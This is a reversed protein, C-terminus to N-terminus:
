KKNPIILYIISAIVLFGSVLLINQILAKSMKKSPANPIEKPTEDVKDIIEVEELIVSSKKLPINITDSLFNAVSITKTDYGLLRATIYDTNSLGNLIWFGNEDSKSTLTPNTILKGNIDSRYIVAFEIPKKDDLILGKLNRIM